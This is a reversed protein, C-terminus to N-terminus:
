SPRSTHPRPNTPAIILRAAPHARRVAEWMPLLVAEDAPWTSGAVMTPRDSHLATLLPSARDVRQARQWVQDFRTDGTIHLTDTRM